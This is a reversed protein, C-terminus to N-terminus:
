TAIDIKVPGNTQLLEFSAIELIPLDVTGREKASPQDVGM